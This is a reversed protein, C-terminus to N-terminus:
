LRGLGGFTEDKRGETSRLRGGGRWHGCGCGRHRLRSSGHGCLAFFEGSDEEFEGALGEGAFAAESDIGVFEAEDGTLDDLCVAGACLHGDDDSAAVDDASGLEGAVAEDVAGGGVVHAHEAGDDVAEGEAFGDRFEAVGGAAHGGDVDGCDCFGEDAESGDAVHLSALDDDEGSADSVGEEGCVGGRGEAGGFELAIGDEFGGFDVADVGGVGFFVGVGCAEVVEGEFLGEVLLEADHVHGCEGHAGLLSEGDDDEVEVSGAVDGASDGSLGDAGDDGGSGGDM